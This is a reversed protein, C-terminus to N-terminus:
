RLTGRRRGDKGPVDRYRHRHSHTAGHSVARAAGSAYQAMLTRECSEMRDGHAWGKIHLVGHIFLYLIFDKESLAHAPAETKAISPCIIIEASKKGVAYSLVNPVYTKQRLSENLKRAKAPGVFALSLEWGPLQKEAIISYVRRPRGLASRAANKILVSKM